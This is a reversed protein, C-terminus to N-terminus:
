IMNLEYSFLSSQRATGHCDSSVQTPPCQMTNMIENAVFTLTVRIVSMEVGPQLHCTKFDYARTGRRHKCM